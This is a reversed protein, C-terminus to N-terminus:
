GIAGCDEDFGHARAHELCEPLTAFSPSAEVLDGADDTVRRWIWRWEPEPEDVWVAVFQWGM